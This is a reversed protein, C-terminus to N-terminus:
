DIKNTFLVGSLNNGKHLTQTVFFGEPKYSACKSKTGMAGGKLEVGQTKILANCGVYLKREKDSFVLLLLLTWFHLDSRGVVVLVRWGSWINKAYLFFGRWLSYPWHCLGM